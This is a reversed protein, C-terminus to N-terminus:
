RDGEGASSLFCEVFAIDYLRMRSERDQGQVTEVLKEIFLQTHEAGKLEAIVSSATLPVRYGDSRAKWLRFHASATYCRDIVHESVEATLDQASVPVAITLAALFLMPNKM